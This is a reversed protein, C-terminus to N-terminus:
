ADWGVYDRGVVRFIRVEGSKLDGLRYSEQKIKGGKGGQQEYVRIKKKTGDWEYIIGAHVEDDKGVELTYKQHLGGKHGQFRANKFGVVDGPRIEDLQRVTANALNDYILAGYSRRGVPPLAGPVQMVVTRAFEGAVISQNLSGQTIDLMRRGYKKYADELQDQRWLPPASHKQEFVANATDHTDFRVTVLTQSYDHYVIYVERVVMVRGGRKTVRSDEVEYLVEGQLRHVAPPPADAELWWESDDEMDLEHAVYSSADLSARSQRVELSQRQRHPQIPPPLPPQAYQAIVTEPQSTSPSESTDSEDGDELSDNTSSVEQPPPPPPPRAANPPPPPPARSPRVFESEEDVSTTLNIDTDEDAEYGTVEEDFDPPPPPRARPADVSQRRNEAEFKSRRAGQVLPSRPGFDMTAPRSTLVPSIPIPPMTGSGRVYSLRKGAIPSPEHPQAAAFPAYHQRFGEESETREDDGLEDEIVEDIPAYSEEIGSRSKQFV